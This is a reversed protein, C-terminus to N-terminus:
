NAQLLYTLHTILWSFLLNSIKIDSLYTKLMLYSLLQNFLTHKSFHRQKDLFAMSHLPKCLFLSKTYFHQRIYTDRQFALLIYPGTGFYTLCIATKLLNLQLPRYTLHQRLHTSKLIQSMVNGQCISAGFLCYYKMLSHSTHFLVDQTYNKGFHSILCRTHAIPGPGLAQTFHM